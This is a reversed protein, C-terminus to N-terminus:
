AARPRGVHTPAARRSRWASRVRGSRSTGAYAAQRVAATARLDEYRAAAVASTLHPHVRAEKALQDFM